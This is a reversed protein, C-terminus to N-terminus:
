CRLVECCHQQLQHLQQEFALLEVGAAQLVSHLLQGAAPGADEADESCSDVGGVSGFWGRAAQKPGTAAGLMADTALTGVYGAEAGPPLQHDWQRQMLQRFQKNSRPLAAAYEDWLDLVASPQRLPQRSSSKRASKGTHRQPQQPTAGAAVSYQPGQQLQQQQSLQLHSLFLDAALRPANAGFLQSSCAAHYAHQEQAPQTSVLQECVQVLVLLGVVPMYRTM